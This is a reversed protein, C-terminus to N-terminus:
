REFFQPDHHAREASEQLQGVEGFIPLPHAREALAFASRVRLRVLFRDAVRDAAKMLSAHRGLFDLCEEPRM